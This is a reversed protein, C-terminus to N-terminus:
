SMCHVPNMFSYKQQSGYDINQQSTADIYLVQKDVRFRYLLQCLLLINQSLSAIRTLILYKIPMKYKIINAFGVTNKVQFYFVTAPIIAGAAM